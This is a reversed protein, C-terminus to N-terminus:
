SLYSVDHSYIYEPANWLDEGHSFIEKFHRFLIKTDPIAPPTFFNLLNKELKKKRRWLSFYLIRIVDM